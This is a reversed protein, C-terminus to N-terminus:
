KVGEQIRVYLYKNNPHHEVSGDPNTIRIHAKLVVGGTKTHIADFPVLAVGNVADEISASVPSFGEMLFEITAGTLDIPSGGDSVTLRVGIGTDGQTLHIM